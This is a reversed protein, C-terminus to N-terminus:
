KGFGGAAASEDDIPQYYKPAWQEDTTTEDDAYVTSQTLLLEGADMKMVIIEPVIYDRKMKNKRRDM